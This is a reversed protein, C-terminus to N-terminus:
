LQKGIHIALDRMRSAFGMENDYWAFVKIFSGDIV